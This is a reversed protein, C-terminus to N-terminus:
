VPRSVAPEARGDRRSVVRDPGSTELRRVLGPVQRLIRRADDLGLWFFPRGQEGGPPSPPHLLEPVGQGLGDARRHQRPKPRSRSPFAPGRFRRCPGPRGLANSDHVFVAVIADFWVCRWHRQSAADRRDDWNHEHDVMIVPRGMDNLQAEWGPQDKRLLNGLDIYRKFLDAGAVELRPDTYVKREPGHYYEFLSAHGNHFSLFRSPMGPEGAFRAAEHPFFVPEEGLSIVRGEGTMKYFLGSGVWFLVLVVAGFAVLRPGAGSSTSEGTEGALRRRRVAAAWEGFNWATITGVVAAFQHSNRTAQLSLISFAAYLLLRFPSLRWGAHSM